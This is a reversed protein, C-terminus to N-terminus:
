QDQEDPGGNMADEIVDDHRTDPVYYYGHDEPELADPEQGPVSTADTEADGDRFGPGPTMAWPERQTETRRRQETATRRNERRGDSVPRKPMGNEDRAAEAEALAPEVVTSIRAKMERSARLEDNELENHQENMRNRVVEYEAWSIDRFGESREALLCKEVVTGDVCLYIYNTTRMDYAITCKRARTGTARGAKIYWQNEAGFESYYFLDRYEIGRPSVNASVRPLLNKYVIEPNMTRLLGGRNEIGWNWLKIPIPEIADSIMATDYPYDQLIHSKNYRLIYSLVVYRLEDLTICPTGRHDRAGRRTPPPGGGPVDNLAYHDLLHFDLEVPGKTDPRYPPSNSVSIGLANVLNSAEHSEGEGRDALINEPLYHCPWEDPTITIGYNKCLQVKDQVVSTIALVQAVWSPNELTVLFGVIMYSFLDKVFYLTATGLEKTRDYFDVIFCRAPTSDTFFWHGPGFAMQAAAGPKPAFNAAVFSEGEQAALVDLRDRRTHCHYKFQGLTPLSDKHPLKPIPVGDANLHIGTKFFAELTANHAATLSKGGRIYFRRYGRCLLAKTKADINVGPLRNEGDRPRGRKPGDPDPDANKAGSRDFRPILTNPTQGGYWYRRLKNYILRKSHGSKEAAEAILRGRESRLFVSEGTGAEVIPKLIAWNEDRRRRQADTYASEPRCFYNDNFLITIAAGSELATEIEHYSRLIGLGKKPTNINFVYVYTKGPDVWLIRERRGDASDDAVWEIVM